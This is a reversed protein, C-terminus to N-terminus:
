YTGSVGESQDEDIEGLTLSELIDLCATSYGIAESNKQLTGDATEATFLGASWSDRREEVRGELKKKFSITEELSLWERYEM